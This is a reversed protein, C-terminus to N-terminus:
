TVSFTLNKGGVHGTQTRAGDSWLLWTSSETHTEPRSQQAPTLVTVCFLSKDECDGPPFTVGCVHRSM